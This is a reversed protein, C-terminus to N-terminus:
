RNSFSDSHSFLMHAGSHTKPPSPHAQRRRIHRSGPTSGLCITICPRTTDRSCPGWMSVTLKHAHVLRAPYSLLSMKKCQPTPWMAAESVVLCTTQAPTEGSTSLIQRINEQTRVIRCQHVSELATLIHPLKPRNPHAGKRKLMVAWQAPPGRTDARRAVVSAQVESSSRQELAVSVALLACSGFSGWKQRRHGRGGGHVCRLPVARLGRLALHRIGAPAQAAPVVVVEGGGARIAGAARAPSM